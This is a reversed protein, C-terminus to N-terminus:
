PNPQHGDAIMSFVRYIAQPFVRGRAVGATTPAPKRRAQQALQRADRDTIVRSQKAWRVLDEVSELREIPRGSARWSVTNAFDLAPRGSLHFRWLKEGM